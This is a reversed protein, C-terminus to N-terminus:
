KTEYRVANAASLIALLFNTVVYACAVAYCSYHYLLAFVCRFAYHFCVFLFSVLYM